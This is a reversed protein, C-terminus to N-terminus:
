VKKGQEICQTCRDMLAVVFRSPEIRENLEFSFMKKQIQPLKEQIKNVEQVTVQFQSSPNVLWENIKLFDIQSMEQIAEQTNEKNKRSSQQNMEIEIKGLAESINNGEFEILKKNLSSLAELCAEKVDRALKKGEELNTEWSKLAMEGRVQESHSLLPLGPTNDRQMWILVEQFKSWASCAEKEKVYIDKLSLDVVQYCKQIADVKLYLEQQSVELRENVESAQTKFASIDITTNKTLTLRAQLKEILNDRQTILGKSTQSSQYLLELNDQLQKIQQQHSARIKEFDQNMRSIVTQEINYIENKLQEVL